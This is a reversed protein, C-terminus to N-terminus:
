RFGSTAIQKQSTIKIVNKGKLNLFVPFWNARKYHLSLVSPDQQQLDSLAAHARGTEAM